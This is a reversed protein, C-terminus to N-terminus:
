RYKKNMIPTALTVVGIWHCGNERLSYACTDATYGRTLVDGALLVAEYTNLTTQTKNYNEWKM